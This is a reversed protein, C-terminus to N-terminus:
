IYKNELIKKPNEIFIQKIHTDSMHKSVAKYADEILPPRLKANHCDTGIFHVLGKNVLRRHYAAETNWFRGGLSVSNMQIYSGLKILEKMLDERKVLCNYREVHALVPAYGALVFEQLGHYITKFHERVGFEILVYRSDALTMAKGLIVDELVSESYFIENGLLIDYNLGLRKATEQVQNRINILEEITMNKSGVAYHPTAIITTIGENGAIRLMEMTEEMSFSGDDVGPLIHSHIDIYQKVAM